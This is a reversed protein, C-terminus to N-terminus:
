RNKNPKPHKPKSPWLAFLLGILGLGLFILATGGAFVSIPSSRLSASISLQVNTDSESYVFYRPAWFSVAYLCALAGLALNALIIWRDALHRKMM